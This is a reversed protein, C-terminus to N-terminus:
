GASTLLPMGIDSSSLIYRDPNACVQEYEDRSQFSEITTREEENLDEYKTKGYNPPLWAKNRAAYINLREVIPMAEPRFVLHATGKKYLTVTFYTFPINKYDRAAAARSLSLEPNERWTLEGKDLYTLARELDSIAKSVDYQRLDYSRNWSYSYFGNMPIICKKGIKHASNTRWGTYYHINNKCEPYYAHKASLKDFLALISQEVGENLQLQIEWFIREINYKNFEYECLEELKSLYEERMASTMKSKLEDRDFLRKWYRSRLCRLFSNYAATPNYGTKNGGVTLVLIETENKDPDRNLEPAVSCYESILKYAAAAEANYYGVLEAIFDGTVTLNEAKVTENIVQDKAKKLSDLIDHEKTVPPINLHILAIEVDTQREAHKFADSVFEISANHETLKAALYNRVNTYPNRITEANLICVIEGGFREQLQIAKLLHEAGHAFGPNMIILDYHKATQFTLFDDGIVRFGRGKLLCQLNLDSEICDFLEQMTKGSDSKYRSWNKKRMYKEFYDILNGKGASPELVTQINASPTQIKGFMRGALQEPTPYFEKNGDGLLRMVEKDSIKFEESAKEDAKRKWEQWESTHERYNDLVIKKAEILTPPQVDGRQNEYRPNKVRSYIRSRDWDLCLYQEKNLRRRIEGIYEGDLFVAYCIEGYMNKSEQLYLM